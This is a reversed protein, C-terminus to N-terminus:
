ADGAKRRINFQDLRAAFDQPSTWKGALAPPVPAGDKHSVEYLKWQGHLRLIYDGVEYTVAERLDANQQHYEAPNTPYKGMAGM